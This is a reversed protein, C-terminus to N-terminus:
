YGGFFKDLVLLFINNVRCIVGSSAIVCHFSYLSISSKIALFVSNKLKFLLFIIKLCGPNLEFYQGFLNYIHIQQNQYCLELLLITLYRENAYSM